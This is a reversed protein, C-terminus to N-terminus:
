GVVQRLVGHSRDCQAAFVPDMEAAFLGAGFDGSDEGDDFGAFPKVDRGFVIKSLHQRPQSVQLWILEALKRDAAVVGASATSVSRGTAGLPRGIPRSLGAAGQDRYADRWRYLVSRKIKLENSLASVSEGKIIRRAVAIRFEVRFVRAGPM